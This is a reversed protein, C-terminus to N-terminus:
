RILTVNGHENFLKHDDRIAYFSYVYVGIPVPLGNKTGDWGENPDNTVFILEGWENFIKLDFQIYNGGRVFLIDNQGNGDPSFGTPIAADLKVIIKKMISDTCGFANTVVLFVHKVGVELWFHSPNQEISTEPIPMNFTVSDDFFWFWSTPLGTSEDFFLIEKRIYVIDDSITYDAEPSPKVTFPITQSTDKCGLDSEVVM